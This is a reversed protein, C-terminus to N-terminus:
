RCSRSMLGLSKRTMVHVPYVKRNPTRSRGCYRRFRCHQCSVPRVLWASGREGDVVICSSREASMKQMKGVAEAATGPMDAADVGASTPEITGVSDFLLLKRGVLMGLHQEIAEFMGAPSNAAPLRQSFTYPVPLL